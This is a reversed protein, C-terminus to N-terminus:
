VTQKQFIFFKADAANVYKFKELFLYLASVLRFKKFAM